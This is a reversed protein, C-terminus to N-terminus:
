ETVENHIMGIFTFEFESLDYKQTFNTGIIKIKM